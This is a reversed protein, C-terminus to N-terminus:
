KHKDISSLLKMAEYNPYYIRVNFLQGGNIFANAECRNASRFYEKWLDYNDNNVAPSFITENKQPQPPTWFKKASDYDSYVDFSIIKEGKLEKKCIYSAKHMLNQLIKDLQDDVIPYKYGDKYLYFEFILVGRITSEELMKYSLYFTGGYKKNLTEFQKISEWGSIKKMRAKMRKTVTEKM